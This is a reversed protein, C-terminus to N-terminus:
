NDLIDFMACQQGSKDLVTDYQLSKLGKLYTLTLEKDVTEMCVQSPQKPQTCIPIDNGKCYDVWTTNPNDVVVSKKWLIKNIKHLCPCTFPNGYIGLNTVRIKNLFDEPIFNLLNASISLRAIFVSEPFNELSVTELQNHHLGVDLVFAAGDKFLPGEIKSIANSNLYVELLKRWGHFMGAPITRVANKFMNFNEINSTNTFWERKVYELGNRALSIEKLSPLNAFAHDEITTIKNGWLYLIKLTPIDSFVGSRIIPISNSNIKIKTLRPLNKFAGPEIAQVQFNDIEIENLNEMNSIFNEGIFPLVGDFIYFKYIKKPAFTADSVCGSIAVYVSDTSNEFEYYNVSLRPAYDCSQASVYLIIAVILLFAFIKSM